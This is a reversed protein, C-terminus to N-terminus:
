KGGYYEKKALLEKHKKISNEDFRYRIIKAPVGAVIAYPPVDKNVLAGAAVIAGEKITVGKLITSNAGIWNDGELTIPQDNEPLKEEVSVDIMFKGLMDIRHDGTIMTVNPGFMVNDGINISAETCMFVNGYGFSVHNGVKLNFGFFKVNSPISVSSGCSIFKKKISNAKIKNIIRKPMSKLKRFITIM